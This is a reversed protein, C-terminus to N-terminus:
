SHNLRTIFRSQCFAADPLTGPQKHSAGGDLDSENLEYVNQQQVFVAGIRRLM